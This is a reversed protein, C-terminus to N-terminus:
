WARGSGSIAAWRPSTSHLTPWVSSARRTKRSARERSACFSTRRSVSARRRTSRHGPAARHRPRPELREPQRATTAAAGEGGSAAAQVVTGGAGGAPALSTREPRRASRTSGTALSDGRETEAANSRRPSEVRRCARGTSAARCCARAPASTARRPRASSAARSAGSRSGRRASGRPARRSRASRPRTRSAARGATARPASRAGPHRASWATSVRRRRAKALEAPADVEDCNAAPVIAAVRSAGAGTTVTRIRRSPEQRSSCRRSRRCAPAPWASGTGARRRGGRRRCAGARIASPASRSTRCSGRRAARRRARQAAVVGRGREGGVVEAQAGRARQLRRGAVREPASMVTSLCRGTPRRARRRCSPRRRRRQEGEVTEPAEVPRQFPQQRDAQREAGVNGEEEGSGVGEGGADALPQDRGVDRRRPKGDDLRGGPQGRALDEGPRLDGLADRSSSDRAKGLCDGPTSPTGPARQPFRAEVQRLSRSSRGGPRRRPDKGRPRVRPTRERALRRCCGSSPSPFRPRRAPPFRGPAM